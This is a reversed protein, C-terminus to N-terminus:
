LGYLAGYKSELYALYPAISLPEGTAREVLEAATFKRGHRYLHETLWERLPGFEGAGIQADLDGVDRRASAFFQASMVNGLTYSQFAGGVIGGYWHVDQLAGDRDDAPTVGLDSEIRERWADPLDAVSLSGELMALELDFRMMVHLNYTVEDADTRVLSPAVKNIARYFADVDAGNLANPFARKLRPYWHTWFPLSRGVVNEWLRSQSEHVGATTGHFLPTGDLADDIGQEYMAHGAEHLTSFLGDSLCDARYRTTIRVDGRGLKIMFPHATKDQRGRSFDYGFARVITEGFSQQVAEPFNGSLCADDPEPRARIKEILPVLRARLETFLARVAAVTMGDEALDVLADYPHAYGPYFSALERSLEVTTELLPRMAAFDNAPRAGEWAHYSRASHEALRQVFQPPVRTARDHDRRVVRALAAADSDSGQAEAWPTISDLLRGIAPDALREHALSSLLAVQRGRAEVGGRPIYTAEDWTLVAQAGHLDEIAQLRQTLETYDAEANMSKM